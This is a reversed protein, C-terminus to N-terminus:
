DESSPPVVQALECVSLHLIVAGPRKVPLLHNDLQLAVSGLVRRWRSITASAGSLLNSVSNGPGDLQARCPPFSREDQPRDPGAPDPDGPTWPRNM